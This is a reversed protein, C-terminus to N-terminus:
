GLARLRQRLRGVARDVVQWERESFYALEADEVQAFDVVKILLEVQRRTLDVRVGPVDGHGASEPM